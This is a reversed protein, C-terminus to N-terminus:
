MHARKPAYLRVSVLYMSLLNMQTPSFVCLSRVEGLLTNNQDARAGGRVGEGAGGGGFGLESFEGRREQAQQQGQEEGDPAAAAVSVADAIQEDDMMSGVAAELFHCVCVATGRVFEQPTM